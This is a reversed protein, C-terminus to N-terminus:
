VTKQPDPAPANAAPAPASQAAAAAAAAQPLPVPGTPAAAAPAPAPQSVTVGPLNAPLSPPPTVGPLTVPATSPVGGQQQQAQAKTSGFVGEWINGLKVSLLLASFFITLGIFRIKPVFNAM